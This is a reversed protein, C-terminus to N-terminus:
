CRKQFANWFRVYTFKLSDKLLMVHEQVESRLLDQASGVNIVKQWIRNLPKSVAASVEGSIKGMDADTKQGSDKWLVNELKKEMEKTSRINNQKRTEM